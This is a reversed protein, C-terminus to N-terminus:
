RRVPVICGACEVDREGRQRRAGVQKRRRTDDVRQGARGGRERREAREGFDDPRGGDRHHPFAAVEM